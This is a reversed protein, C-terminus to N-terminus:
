TAALLKPLRVLNCAAATFTFAWGVSEASIGKQVEPNQAVYGPDDLSVFDLAGVGAYAALTLVVLGLALRLALAASSTSALTASTSPCSASSCLV